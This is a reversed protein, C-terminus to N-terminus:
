SLNFKELFEDRRLCNGHFFSLKPAIYRIIEEQLEDPFPLSSRYIKRCHKCDLACACMQWDYTSNCRYCVYLFPKNHTECIRLPDIIFWKKTM